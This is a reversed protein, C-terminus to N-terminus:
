VKVTYSNKLGSKGAGLSGDVSSVSRKFGSRRQKSRERERLEHRRNVSRHSRRRRHSHCSSSRPVQAERARAVGAIVGDEALLDFQALQLRGIGGQNQRRPQSAVGSAGRM